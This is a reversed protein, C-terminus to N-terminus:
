SGFKQYPFRIGHKKHSCIINYCHSHHLAYNGYITNSIVDICQLHNCTKSDAYYLDINHNSKWDWAAKIRLYDKLSNGSRVAINRNDCIIEINENAQKIIPEVLLGTLYNFRIADPLEPKFYQKDVIIYSFRFDDFSTLRNLFHQRQEFALDKGKLEDLPENIGYAIRSRKVLNKIRNTTPPLLCAIVFYRGKKGLNGSEDLYIQM